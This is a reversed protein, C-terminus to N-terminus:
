RTIAIIIIALPHEVGCACETTV